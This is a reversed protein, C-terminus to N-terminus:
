NLVSTDWSRELDHFIKGQEVVLPSPINDTYIAGTGLGQPITIPYNATFQCIANL